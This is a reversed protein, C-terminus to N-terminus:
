SGLEGLLSDVLADASLADARALRFLKELGSHSVPTAAGMSLATNTTLVQAVAALRTMLALEFWEHLTGDNDDRYLHRSIEVTGNNLVSIFTDTHPSPAWQIEHKETRDILRQILLDSKNETASAPM